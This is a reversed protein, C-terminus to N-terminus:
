SHLVLVCGWFCTGRHANCAELLCILMQQRDHISSRAQAVTLQRRATVPASVHLTGAQPRDCQWLCAKQPRAGSAAEPSCQMTLVSCQMSSLHSNLQRLSHLILQSCEAAQQSGPALM